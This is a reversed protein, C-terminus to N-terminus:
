TPNRYNGAATRGAVVKAKALVGLGQSCDNSLEYSSYLRTADFGM